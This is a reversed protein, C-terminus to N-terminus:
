IRKALSFGPGIVVDVFRAAPTGLSTGVVRSISVPGDLIKSIPKSRMHAM